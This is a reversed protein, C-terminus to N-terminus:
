RFNVTTFWMKILIHLLGGPLESINQLNVWAVPPCTFEQFSNLLFLPLEATSTDLLRLHLTNYAPMITGIAFGYIRM